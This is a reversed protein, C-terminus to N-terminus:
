TPRELHVVELESGERLPTREGTPVFGCREYMAAAGENSDTVCLHVTSAGEEAAWACVAEVLARGVGTRRADPAVWMAYLHAADPRERWRVGLALGRWADGDEAVFLAQREAGDWGTVWGRWREETEEAEREFTSGFADPADRLAALRLARVREWEDANARRIPM